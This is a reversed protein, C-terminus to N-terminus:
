QPLFESLDAKDLIEFKKRFYKRIVEGAADAVRNAVEAFRDLEEEKGNGWQLTGAPSNDTSLSPNSAMTPSLTLSRSSVPTILAPFSLNSPKSLSSTAVPPSPFPSHKHYQSDSYSPPLLHSRTLM